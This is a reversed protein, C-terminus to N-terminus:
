KPPEAAAPEAAGAEAPLEVVVVKIDTKGVNRASHAVAPMFIGQSPTVDFKQKDKGSTVEMTGGQVVFHLNDPHVHAGIKAGKKLNAELVRVKENKFIERYNKKGVVAPDKGAPAASKSGARLEVVLGKFEKDSLSEAEHAGAPMFAASGAKIEIEQPQGGQPTVKLKGATIGYVVHDPHQHLGIKAAPAFTVEYARIQDNETVVKYIDPGVEHPAGIKPPEPETPAPETPGTGPDTAAPDEVPPETIVPTTSDDKSGGGCGILLALIFFPNKSRM